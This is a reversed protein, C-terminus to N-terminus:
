PNKNPPDTINSWHTIKKLERHIDVFNGDQFYSCTVQDGDTILVYDFQEPLGEDVSIWENM